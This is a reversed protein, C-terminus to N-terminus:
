ASVRSLLVAIIVGAGSAAELAIGVAIGTGGQAVIAGTADVKVPTGGDIFPIAAAAVMFSIGSAVVTAAEGSKPKNQVVGAIIGGAAPLRAQGTANTIVAKFQSASLDVGAVLTYSFGPQEFAM